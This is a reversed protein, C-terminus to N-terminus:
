KKLLKELMNAIDSDSFPYVKKWREKLTLRHREGGNDKKEARVEKRKSFKLSTTNVVISEKVVSKVTKKASNMEKKDKMVEPVLFDNTGRSTISLKMDHARIALEKFTCLKIRLLNIKREMATMAAKATINAIMVSVMDSHPERKSKSSAFGANDYLSNEKIVSRVKSSEM